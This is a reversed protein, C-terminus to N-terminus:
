TVPSVLMVLEMSETDRALAAAQVLSDYAPAGYDDHSQGYLYHDALALAAVGGAESIRAITLLHDYDGVVQVGLEM